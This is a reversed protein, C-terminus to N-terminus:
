KVMELFKKPHIVTVGKYTKPFHKINRTVLYDAQAEVACALVANDDPDRCVGELTRQPHVLISILALDKVHREIAANTYPYKKRIRPYHLTHRVELLIFPSLYLEHAKAQRLVHADEGQPALFASVLINADLVVNM